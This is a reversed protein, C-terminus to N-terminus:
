PKEKPCCIRCYECCVEDSYMEHGDRKCFGVPKPLLHDQNIRPRGGINKPKYEVAGPNKKRWMWEAYEDRSIDCYPTKQKYHWDYHNRNPGIEVDCDYLM